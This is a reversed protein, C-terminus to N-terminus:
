MYVKEGNKVIISQKCFGQELEEFTYNPHNEVFNEEWEFMNDKFTFGLLNITDVEVREGNGKIAREFMEIHVNSDIDKVYFPHRLKRYPLKTTSKPILQVITPQYWPPIFM